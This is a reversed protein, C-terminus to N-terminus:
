NGRLGGTDPSDLNPLTLIKVMLSTVRYAALSAAVVMFAVAGAIWRSGQGFDNIVGQTALLAMSLGVTVLMMLIAEWHYRVLPAFLNMRRLSKVPATNLLALLLGLASGQFGALISAADVASGLSGKLANYVASEPPNWYVVAVAIVFGFFYPYGKEAIARRRVKWSPKRKTPNDEATMQSPITIAVM